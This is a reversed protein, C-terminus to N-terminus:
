AKLNSMRRNHGHVYIQHKIHALDKQRQTLSRKARTMKKLNYNHIRNLHAIRKANYTHIYRKHNYRRINRSSHSRASATFNTATPAGITGIMLAAACLYLSRKLTKNM